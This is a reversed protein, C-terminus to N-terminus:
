IRRYIKEERSFVEFNLNYNSFRLTEKSGLALFGRRALSDNFLGLARNQLDRDFYILVNRCSVFQVESFVSDTALSHDAFVINARLTKDLMASHYDATFYTSFSERGGSKQYNATYEKIRDIHFIGQEALKM